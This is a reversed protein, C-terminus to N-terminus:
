FGPFDDLLGKFPDEEIKDFGGSLAAEELGETISEFDSPDPPLVFGYETAIARAQARRLSALEPRLADELYVSELYISRAVFQVVNPDVDTVRLVQAISEPALSLLATGDMETATTIADELLDAADQASEEKLETSRVIAKFFKLLLRMLYDQEFM